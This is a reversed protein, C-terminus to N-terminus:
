TQGTCSSGASRKGGTAARIRQRGAEVGRRTLQLSTTVDPQLV